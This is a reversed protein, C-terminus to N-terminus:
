KALVDKLTTDAKELAANPDGGQLIDQALTRLTADGEIINLAPFITTAQAGISKAVPLYWNSANQRNVDDRVLPVNDTVSKRVPLGGMAGKNFLVAEHDSWWRLFTETATKDKASNFMVMNAVWMITGKDGHVGELPPLMAIKASDEASAGDLLGPQGFMFAGDGALFAGRQQDYTFGVSGQHVSGDKVLDALFQMAEKNRDNLLNYEADADYVGGGNNAMLMLVTQMGQTADASFIVGAKGTKDKVAKAAARFEDWTKPPQVGAQELLDKRYWWTRVDMLFPLAVYHNDYRLREPAKIYFDDYSGDAKMKEILDDVPAVAGADYFQVAMFAAGTAADPQTGSAIASAYTEYWNQWSISRYNVKIDPHETNFQQALAAAADAYTGGWQMDWYDVTAQGYALGASGALGAVIAAALAPMRWNWKRTM